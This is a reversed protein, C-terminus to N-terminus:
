GAGNERALMKGSEFEEKYDSGIMVVGDSSIYVEDKDITEVVSEWTFCIPAEQPYEKLLEIFESVKM